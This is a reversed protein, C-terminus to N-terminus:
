ITGNRLGQFVSAIPMRVDKAALMRAASLLLFIYRVVLRTPDIIVYIDHSPAPPKSGALEYGLLVEM